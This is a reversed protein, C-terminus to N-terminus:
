IKQKNKEKIAQAIKTTVKDPSESKAKIKAILSKPDGYNSKM